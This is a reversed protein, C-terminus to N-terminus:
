THSSTPVCGPLNTSPPILVCFLSACYARLVLSSQPLNRLSPSAPPSDQLIFQFSACFLFLFCLHPQSLVDQLQSCCCHRSAPSLICPPLLSLGLLFAIITQQHHQKGSSFVLTQNCCRLHVCSTWFKYLCLLFQLGRKHSWPAYTMTLFRPEIEMAM